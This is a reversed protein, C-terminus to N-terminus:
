GKNTTYWKKPSGSMDKGDKRIIAHYEVVKGIREVESADHKAQLKAVIKAAADATYGLDLLEATVDDVFSVKNLEALEHSNPEFRYKRGNIIKVNM